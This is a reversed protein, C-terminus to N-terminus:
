KTFEIDREQEKFNYGSGGIEWGILKDELEKDLKEDLEGQYTIKIKM